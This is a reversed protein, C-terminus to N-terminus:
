QYIKIPRMLRLGPWGSTTCDTVANTIEAKYNNSADLYRLMATFKGGTVDYTGGFDVREAFLCPYEDSDM